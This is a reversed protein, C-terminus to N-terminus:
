NTQYEATTTIFFDSSNLSIWFDTTSNSEAPQHGSHNRDSFSCETFCILYFKLFM